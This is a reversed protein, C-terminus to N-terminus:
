EDRILRHHLAFLALELRNSVGTKDFINTLHHKVTYEGVGLRTAIGKNSDGEVVLRLVDRERPTLGFRNAPPEPQHDSAVLSAVVAGITERDVWLEGDHVKRISKYVLEMPANKLVVGRAGEQLVRAIDNRDIAATLLITRCGSAGAEKMERIVDLGSLGPMSLDLLMVDPELSAVLRLAERGDSAAGIVVFDSQTSLLTQLGDRVLPHDDAILIRIRGPDRHLAKLSRTRVGTLDAESERSPLAASPPRVLDNKQFPFRRALVM